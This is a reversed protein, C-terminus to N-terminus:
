YHCVEKMQLLPVCVGKEKWFPVSAKRVRKVKMLNLCKSEIDFTICKDTGGDVLVHVM